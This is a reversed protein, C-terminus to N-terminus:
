QYFWVNEKTVGTSRSTKCYQSFTQLIVLFKVLTVVGKSNVIAIRRHIFKFHFTRLKTSYTCNFAITYAVKLNVDSDNEVHLDRAKKKKISELHTHHNTEESPICLYVSQSQKSIVKNFTVAKEM